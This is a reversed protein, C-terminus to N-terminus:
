LNQNYSRIFMSIGNGLSDLSSIDLKNLLSLEKSSSCRLVYIKM